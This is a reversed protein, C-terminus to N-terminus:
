AETMQLAIVPIIGVYHPHQCIIIICPSSNASLYCSILFYYNNNHNCIAAAATTTIIKHQTVESM